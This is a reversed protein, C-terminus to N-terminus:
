RAPRPDSRRPRARVDARAGPTPSARSRSGARTSCSRARTPRRGTADADGHRRPGQAHLRRAPRARRPHRPGRRAPRLQPSRDRTHRDIRLHRVGVVSVRLVRLDCPSGQILSLVWSYSQADKTDETDRHNAYTHSARPTSRRPATRPSPSSTTSTRSPARGHRALGHAHRAGRHRRGQAEGEAAAPDCRRARPGRHRLRRHDLHPLVAPEPARREIQKVASLNPLDTVKPAFGSQRMHEVWKGCCGCTPTKYVTIPTAVQASPALSAVLVFALSLTISRMSRLKRLM